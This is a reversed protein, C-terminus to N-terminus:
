GRGKVEEGPQTGLGGDCEMFVANGGGNTAREGFDAYRPASVVEAIDDGANGACLRVAYRGNGEHGVHVMGAKLNNSAIAIVQNAFGGAADRGARESGANGELNDQGGAASQGGFGDAGVAVFPLPFGPDAECIRHVVVDGNRRRGHEVQGIEADLVVADDHAGGVVRAPPPQM